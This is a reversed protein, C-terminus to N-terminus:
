RNFSYSTDILLYSWFMCSLLDATSPPLGSGNSSEVIDLGQSKNSKDADSPAIKGENSEDNKSSASSFMAEVVTTSTTISSKGDSKVHKEDQLSENQVIENDNAFNSKVNDEDIEGLNGDQKQNSSSPLNSSSSPMNDDDNNNTTTSSSPAQNDDNKDESSEVTDVGQSSSSAQKNSSYGYM